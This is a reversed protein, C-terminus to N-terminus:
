SAGVEGVAGAAGGAGAGAGGAGAGGVALEQPPEQPPEEFACYDAGAASCAQGSLQQMICIYTCITRPYDRALLRENTGHVRM